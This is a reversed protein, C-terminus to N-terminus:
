YNKISDFTAIGGKLNYDNQNYRYKFVGGIPISECVSSEIWDCYPDTQSNFKSYLLWTGDGYSANRYVHVSFARDEAVSTNWWVTCSRSSAYNEMTDCTYTVGKINADNGIPACAERNCVAQQVLYSSDTVAGCDSGDYNSVYRCTRTRSMVGGACARSCAGYEGWDTCEMKVSSCCSNINCTYNRTEEVCATGLYADKKKKTQPVVVNTGCVPCDGVWDGDDVQATCHVYSTYVFERQSVNGAVDKVSVYVKYSTGDYQFGSIKPLQKNGNFEEWDSCFGNYSVCMKLNSTPTIDDTVSISLKPSDNNYSPNSSVIASTADFTPPKNDITFPGFAIYNSDNYVWPNSYLDMLDTSHFILYLKGSEGLPTSINSTEATVLRGASIDVRQVAETPLDAFNITQLGTESFDMSSTSWKYYLSGGRAIGSRGSVKIKVDISKKDLLNYSSPEVSVGITSSVDIGACTAPDQTNVEGNVPLSYILENPNSKNACGLFGKYSYSDEHKTVEVYTSTTNCTVGDSNYDKILNKEYLDEFTVYACGTDYHGFLDEGYSDVYLKSANIVTDLYSSYKTNSNKVTINRIVPISMAMIIGLITICVLLEILTFGKKNIKM